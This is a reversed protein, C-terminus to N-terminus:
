EGVPSGGRHRFQGWDDFSDYSLGEGRGVAYMAEALGPSIVKDGIHAAGILAAYEGFLERIFRHIADIMALEKEPRVEKAFLPIGEKDFSDLSPEPSTMILEMEMFHELLGPVEGSLYCRIDCTDAADYLPKGYNFGVLRFPAFMALYTQCTGSAVFDVLAYRAGIKLDLHGMYRYYAERADEARRLIAAAHREICSDLSEGPSLAPHIESPDLGYYTELIKEPTYGSAFRGAMEGIFSTSGPTASVPMFAARRNTYFYVSSPLDERFRRVEEYFDHELWGDRSAFLVGDPKEDRMNSILWTLHGIIVPGAAGFAYDALTREPTPEEGFPDAFLHAISLGLLCREEITRAKQLCLKYGEGQPGELAADLASPIWLAAFGARGAADRDASQSDGLHLLRVERGHKEEAFARVRDFLGEEKLCKEECSIFLADYDRIGCLALLERMVPSTLYMDSTLIVTKKLRRAEELLAIVAPRPVLVEREVELEIEKLAEIDRRDAIGMLHATTEYIEDFTAHPGESQSFARASAFGDSPLGREGARQETLEFVDQPDPVRRMVLTDFIDFSVVDSSAIERLVADRDASVLSNAPEKSREGEEEMLLEKREFFTIQWTDIGYIRPFIGDQETDIGIHLIKKGPFRGLIRRFAHDKGERLFYVSTLSEEAALGNDILAQEQIGATQHEWGAYIVEKGRDKLWPILRGFVPRLCMRAPWRVDHIMLTNFIEFSVVDYPETLAQWEKLTLFRCSALEERVADQDVGYMDVIRCGMRRCTEGVRGYAFSLDSHRKCIILADAGLDEFAELSMAKFGGIEQGERGPEAVVGAFAFSEGFADLIPRAYAGTGYLVLTGGKYPALREEFVDMVYELETMTEPSRVM